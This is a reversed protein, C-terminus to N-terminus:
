VTPTASCSLLTTILNVISNITCLPDGEICTTLNSLFGTISQVICLVYGIDVDAQIIQMTGTQGAQLIMEQGDAVVLFMRDLGPAIVFTQKNPGKFSLGFMFGDTRDLRVLKMSIGHNRLQTKLSTQGAQVQAVTTLTFLFIMAAITFGM